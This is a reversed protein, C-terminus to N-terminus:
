FGGRAADATRHALIVNFGPQLKIEKFSSKNSRISSIM